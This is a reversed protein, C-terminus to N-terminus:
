GREFGYQGEQRVQRLEFEVQLPARMEPMLGAWEGSVGKCKVAGEECGNPQVCKGNKCTTVGATCSFQHSCERPAGSVDPGCGGCNLNDKKVDVCV